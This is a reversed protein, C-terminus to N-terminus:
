CGIHLLQNICDGRESVFILRRFFCAAAALIQRATVSVNILVAPTIKLPEKDTKDEIISLKASKNAEETVNKAIRTEVWGASRKRRGEGATSGGSPLIQM